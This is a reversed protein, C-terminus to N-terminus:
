KTIQTRVSMLALSCVIKISVNYHTEIFVVILFAAECMNNTNKLHIWCFALFLFPLCLFTHTNKELHFFFMFLWSLFLRKISWLICYCISAYVRHSHFSDVFASSVCVFFLLLLLWHSFTVFFNIDVCRKIDWAIFLQRFSDNEQRRRQAGKKKLVFDDPQKPVRACM